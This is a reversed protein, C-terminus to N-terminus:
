VAELLDLRRRHLVDARQHTLVALFAVFEKETNLVAALFRRQCRLFTQTIVQGNGKRAIDHLVALLETEGELAVLNLRYPTSVTRLFAAIALEVLTVHIDDTRVAQEALQLQNLNHFFYIATQTDVHAQM